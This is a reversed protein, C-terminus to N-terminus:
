SALKDFSNLTKLLVFGCTKVATVTENANKTEYARTKNQTSM